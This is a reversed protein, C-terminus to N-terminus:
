RPLNPALWPAWAKESVQGLSKVDHVLSTFRGSAIGELAHGEVTVSDAIAIGRRDLTDRTATVEAGRVEMVSWACGASRPFV